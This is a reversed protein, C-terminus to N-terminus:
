PSKIVVATLIQTDEGIQESEDFDGAAWEVILGCEDLLADLQSWEIWRVVQRSVHTRIGGAREWEYRHERRLTQGVRDLWYRTHVRAVDGDALTVEQDLYWEGEVLEGALEAFPQFLTFYLRGGPALWSAVRRLGAEMDACLQLTFAPVLLVDYRGQPEFQEIDSAHILPECGHKAAADLCGRRMDASPELGEVRHGQAVLPVLIRGTGSGVELARGPHARVLREIWGWEPSGSHEWFVDHLEAEM